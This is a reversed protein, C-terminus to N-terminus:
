RSKRHPLILMRSTTKIYDVYDSRRSKHHNEALPISIFEFLLIMLIFGLSLYWVSSYVVIFSLFIGIWILNEGLYNPHRSYNWLGQKCTVREKTTRLFVHMDRDAFLELLIGILMIVAGILTLYSNNGRMFLYLLPVLCVYVILTPIMHLGFFNVIFFKGKSLKHRYDSYRYDEHTLNPFTTIWNVTLRIGWIALVAFLIINPISFYAKYAIFFYLSIVIPTVSWYPDYVSTNKFLLSFIFCVVTAIIDAVFFRLLDNNIIFISGYFGVAFCIVYIILVTLLSLCRSNIIKKM